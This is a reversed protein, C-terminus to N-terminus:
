GEVEARRVDDHIRRRVVFEADDLLRRLAPDVSLDEHTMALVVADIVSLMTASYHSDTSSPRHVGRLERFVRSLRPVALEVDLAAAAECWTRVLIQRYVPRAGDDGPASPFLIAEARNLLSLVRDQEGFHVFSPVFRLLLVLSVIQREVTTAPEDPARKGKQGAQAEREARDEAAMIQEAARHALERAQDHLGLRRLVRTSQGLLSALPALDQPNRKTTLLGGFRSLTREVFPPVFQLQDFHTAVTLGRELAAIEQAPEPASEMLGVAHPLLESAFAYGLRPALDLLGRFALWRSPPATAPDLLSALRERAAATRQDPDSISALTAVSRVLPDPSDTRGWRFADVTEAPELIRSQRRFQDILFVARIRHSGVTLSRLPDTELRALLAEPIPSGSHGRRAAEIRADFAELLWHHVADGDLLMGSASELLTRSAELEGVVALGWAFQLDAYAATRANPDLKFVGTNAARTERLLWQRAEDAFERLTSRVQQSRAGSRRGAVRLFAPLDLQPSLGRRHLRELLRDRARALALQDGGTLTAAARWALWAARIPLLGDHRELCRVMLGSDCPLPQGSAEAEVLAAALVLTRSPAPMSDRSISALQDATPPQSPDLDALRMVARRWPVVDDVSPRESMWLAAQWSASSDAPSGLVDHLQAMSRWLPTRMPSDFGGDAALFRGELRQLEAAAEALDIAPAPRAAPAPVSVVSASTRRAPPAPKPQEAPAKSASESAPTAEPNQRAPRNSPERPAPDDVVYSDFEFQFSDSWATLAERDHDLIYDVWDTLSRFANDAVRRVRFSNGDVPELWTIQESDDALLRQLVDRRLPPHVRMGCPAFLHNLKLYPRLALGEFVLVPSTGRGPRTRVLVSRGDADEVVAFALRALLEDDSSAVFSELQEIGRERLLWLEAPEENAVRQLRLPVDFPEVDVPTTSQAASPLVLTAVDYLDAFEPIPLATWEAPARLLLMEGAAPAIRDASPHTWGLQAWVGPTCEAYATLGDADVAQLVSYYPPGVVRLFTREGNPGAVRALSQRDNGLRLVEASLRSVDAACPVEFLVPRSAIEKASIESRELPLIQWWCRVSQVRGIPLENGKEIVVGFPALERALNASTRGGARLHLTGNEETVFEAPSSAREAMAASSSLMMRLASLSPIQFIM